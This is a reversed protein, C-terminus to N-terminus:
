MGRLLRRAEVDGPNIVLAERLAERAERRRGSAHYAMGLAVFLEANHVGLQRALEMERIAEPLAHRALLARGLEAHAEGYASSATIAQRFLVLAGDLDGRILALKGLTTLIRPSDPALALADRLDGEAQATHGLALNIEGLQYSIDANEPATALARTLAVQADQLRGAARWASAAGLLTTTEPRLEAAREWASAAEMPRSVQDYARALTVLLESTTHGRELAQRGHVITQQYRGQAFAETARRAHTAGDSAVPQTAPPNRPRAPTPKRAGPVLPAGDRACFRASPRNAHGCVPCVLASPANVQAPVVRPAVRSVPAPRTVPARRPAPLAALAEHIAARMEAATQFRATPSLNMARIVIAETRSSLAPNVQILAGPLLTALPQPERGTLAHYMTAGLSYVDSRADTQGHGHHEPSAYALTGLNETNTAMGSKYTRAIGFDIVRAAGDSTLIINGPKLDRVILPPVRRHLADLTGLVSDMWGLTDREPLPGHSAEIRQELTDGPIYEMVLYRNSGLTFDDHYAPIRALGRYRSLNRMLAIEQDFHDRAWQREDEPLSADDLVEKLAWRGGDRRDEVLYVGGMGGEGLPRILQYRNVLIDGAALTM